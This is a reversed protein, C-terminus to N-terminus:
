NVGPCIIPKNMTARQNSPIMYSYKGTHSTVNSRAGVSVGYYGFHYTTTPTNFGYDEFGDFGIQRYRTNAGVAIPFKNSYGYQASSYRKIADKNELEMGFPSYKTVETVYTWNTMDKYWGGAKSLKYMPIFDNFFGEHRPSVVAQSNRGTLYTRSSKTRWVGRSNTRYPNSIGTLPQVGGECGAPWNDSYDVAGANIIKWTEWTSGILFSSGVNILDGGSSNQLPNRKLTVNMIGASQLNKHGSNIVKFYTSTSISIPSGNIDILKIYNPSVYSVWAHTKNSGYIIEDGEIFYNTLPNLSLNQITIGNTNTILNGTLGINKSAQGMGKYFWHAPYNFTYYKDSFEDVTETALVEGTLADWALNRTSVSAGDEYAITEKLIGFTNIVKTTSTAKYCDEAHSVDPLPIPTIIPIIAAFFTALNMNVGMTETTTQNSMFDNVIDHEVGITKMRIDGNPYIVKVTNNLTGKNSESYQSANFGIDSSYNDYLYDVGSIATIQGEAFVRQSKLKKNM